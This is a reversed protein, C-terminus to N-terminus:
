ADALVSTLVAAERQQIEIRGFMPRRLAQTIATACVIAGPETARAWLRDAAREADAQELQVLRGDPFSLYVSAV